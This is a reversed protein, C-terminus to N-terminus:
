VDQEQDALWERKVKRWEEDDYDRRWYPSISAESRNVGREAILFKRTTRVEWAEGHLFVDAEGEGWPVASVAERLLDEPASATRRHLWSVELNGPSELDIEHDQDDVVILAFCPRGNPIAELSAAIAPLASEDGALLFWDAEPDPRYGGSPGRMQLQDGPRANQAWRGAYGSDGHAVFDITLAKRTADSSRVTFRRTRPRHEPELARAEDVDFPPSYPAGDPIFLAMVYEDTYGTPEFSDLGPGAFGIRIMSPTLRETSEVTGILSGRETRRGGSPKPVM